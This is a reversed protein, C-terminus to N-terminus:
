GNTKSCVKSVLLRRDFLSPSPGVSRTCSAYVCVGALFLTWVGTGQANVKAMLGDNYLVGTRATGFINVTTTTHKGVVYVNESTYDAVVNYFVVVASSGGSRGQRSAWLTTGLKSVKWLVGDTSGVSPTAVNGFTAAGSQTEGAVLAGGTQERFLM